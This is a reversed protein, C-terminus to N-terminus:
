FRAEQVAAAQQMRAHVRRIPLSATAAAQSSIVQALSRGWGVLSSAEETAAGAASNAIRAEAMWM